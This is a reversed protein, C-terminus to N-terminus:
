INWKNDQQFFFKPEVFLFQQAPLQHEYSADAVLEHHLCMMQQLLLQLLNTAHLKREEKNKKESLILPNFCSSMGLPWGMLLDWPAVHHNTAQLKRQKERM